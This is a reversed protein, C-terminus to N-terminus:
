GIRKVGNKPMAITIGMWFAIGYIMMPISYTTNGCTFIWFGWYLSIISTPIGLIILIRKLTNM